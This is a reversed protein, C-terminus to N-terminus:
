NEDQSLNHNIFKNQFKILNFACISILLSNTIIVDRIFSDMLLIFSKNSSYKNPVIVRLRWHHKIHKGDLLDIALTVNDIKIIITRKTLKNESKNYNWETQM